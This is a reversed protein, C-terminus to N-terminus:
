KRGSVCGKIPRLLIGSIGKHKLKFIDLFVDRVKFGKDLKDYTGDTISLLQKICSDTLKFGSQNTSIFFFFVDQYIVSFTTDAPLKSSITKKVQM